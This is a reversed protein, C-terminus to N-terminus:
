NFFIAQFMFVWTNLTKFEYDFNKKSIFIANVVTLIKKKEM